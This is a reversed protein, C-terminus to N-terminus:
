DASCLQGILTKKRINALASQASTMYNHAHIQVATGHENECACKFRTEFAHSSRDHMSSALTKNFMTGLYPIPSVM